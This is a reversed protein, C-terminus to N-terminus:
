ISISLKRFIKIRPSIKNNASIMLTYACRNRSARPYLAYRSALRHACSNCAALVLLLRLPVAPFHLWARFRLRLPAPAM